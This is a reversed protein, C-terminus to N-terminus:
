SPIVVEYAMKTIYECHKDHKISIVVLNNKTAWEIAATEFWLIFDRYDAATMESTPYGHFYGSILIGM